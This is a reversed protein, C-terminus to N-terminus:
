ETTSQLVELTVLLINSTPDVAARLDWDEEEKPLGCVASDAFTHEVPGRPPCNWASGISLRFSFQLSTADGEVMKLEISGWGRAKQFSALGKSLGKPKPKIMLKCAMDPFLEFSSSVIQRDKGQLKRADVPWQVSVRGSEERELRLERPPADPAFISGYLSGASTTSPISTIALPSADGDDSSISRVSTGDEGFSGLATSLSTPTSAAKCIFSEELGPPPPLGPPPNRCSSSLGPPSSPLDSIMEGVHLLVPEM